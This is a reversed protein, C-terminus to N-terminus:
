DPLFLLDDMVGIYPRYRIMPSSGQGLSAEEEIFLYMLKTETLPFLDVFTFSEFKSCRKGCIGEVRGLDVEMMIM